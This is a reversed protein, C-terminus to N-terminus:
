PRAYNVADSVAVAIIRSIEEKAARHPIYVSIPKGAVAFCLEEVEYFVDDNGIIDLDEIQPYNAVVAHVDYIQWYYSRALTKGIFASFAVVAVLLILRRPTFRVRWSGFRGVSTKSKSDM